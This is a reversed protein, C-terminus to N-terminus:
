GKWILHDPVERYIEGDNDYVLVATTIWAYVFLLDSLINLAKGHRLVIEQNEENRLKFLLVEAHRIATGAQRYIANKETTRLFGTLPKYNHRDLLKSISAEAEDTLELIQQKYKENDPTHFNTGLAFILDQAITIERNISGGYNILFSQVTDLAGLYEIEQSGKPFNMNGCFYTTGKDGTGTRVKTIPYKPKRKNTMKLDEIFKQIKYIIVWGQAETL